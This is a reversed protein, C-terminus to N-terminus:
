GSQPIQIPIRCPITQGWLQMDYEPVRSEDFRIWAIRRSDPSWEFARAMSFEEEYVWDAGGNIIANLKGDTTLQTEKSSSLDVVFLNNDRMFAVRKGDPSFAAYQQRGARSLPRLRKTALEYVYYEARSSRRYIPEEGTTLLLKQEDASLQYGDIHPLQIGQREQREDFLTEVPQGTTINFKVIKGADLTTYFGGTKLWNVGEVTRQTFVGQNRGWIDDLTVPKQAQVLFPSVFLSVVFFRLINM